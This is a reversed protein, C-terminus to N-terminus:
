RKSKRVDSAPRGVIEQYVDPATAGESNFVLVSSTADIALESRAAEDLALFGALGAVGSEGGVIPEDGGVGNALLRMADRAADDPMTEFYDAGGGLIEWAGTSVEGVSLGAMITDLAGTLTVREGAEGSRFLCPALDPEVVIFRPRARGATRSAIHALVAAALGGCGAQVFVHSPWRGDLQELAEEVMLRYGQMVELSLGYEDGPTTDSVLVWGNEEADAKCQEASEDYNGPTRVIEAGYHAIADERSQSVLEHLYIVCHCGIRSAGWALGRGHNGDTAATVTLGDLHEAHRGSFLDSAASEIGASGALYRQVAQSAAYAGGLAKFSTVDFRESEDKLWIEAVGIEAALGSLRALPTPVYGPWASISARAEEFGADPLLAAAREDSAAHDVFANALLQTASTQLM